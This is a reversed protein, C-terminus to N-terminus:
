KRSMTHDLVQRLFQVKDINLTYTVESLLTRSVELRARWSRWAKGLMAHLWAAAADQALERKRRHHEIHEQVLM